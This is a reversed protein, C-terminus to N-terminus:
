GAALKAAHRPLTKKINQITTSITMLAEKKAGSETDDSMVQLITAGLQDRRTAPNVNSSGACAPAKRSRKPPGHLGATLGSCGAFLRVDVRNSSPGLAVLRRPMGSGVVGAEWACRSSM